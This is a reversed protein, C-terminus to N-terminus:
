DYGFCSLLFFLLDFAIDFLLYITLIAHLTIWFIAFNDHLQIFYIILPLIIFLIYWITFILHCAFHYVLFLDFVGWKIKFNIVKKKLDAGQNYSLDNQAFRGTKKEKKLIIIIIFQGAMRFPRKALFHGIMWGNHFPSSLQLFHSTTKNLFVWRKVEDGEVLTSHPEVRSQTTRGALIEHNRGGKRASKSPNQEQKSKWPIWPMLDLLLLWFCVLFHAEFVLKKIGNENWFFEDFVYIFYMYHM